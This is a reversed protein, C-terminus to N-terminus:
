VLNENLRVIKTKLSLKKIAKKVSKYILNLNQGNLEFLINGKEIKAVWYKVQGKGKGMRMGIGKFTIPTDPFIRIWIKVKRKTNSTITRRFSEIQNHNVKGIELSKVGFYGFNLNSSKQKISTKIRKKQTKNYKFNKPKIFNM